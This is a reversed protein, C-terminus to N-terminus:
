HKSLIEKLHCTLKKVNLSSRCGPIALYNRDYNHRPLVRPTAGPAAVNSDSQLQSLPLVEVKDGGWLKPGFFYGIILVVALVQLWRFDKRLWELVRKVRSRREKFPSLSGQGTYLLILIYKQVSLPYFTSGTIAPYQRVKGASPLMPTKLRIRPM